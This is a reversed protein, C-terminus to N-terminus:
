IKLFSNEFQKLSCSSRLLCSFAPLGVFGSIHARVDFYPIGAHSMENRCTNTWLEQWSPFTTPVGDGDEGVSPLRCGGSSWYVIPRRGTCSRGVVPRRGASSWGCVVLRRGGSSRDVVLWRRGCGGGCGCGLCRAGVVVCLFYLEGPRQGPRTLDHATQYM